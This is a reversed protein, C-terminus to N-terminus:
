VAAGRRSDKNAVIMKSGNWSPTRFKPHDNAFHSFM